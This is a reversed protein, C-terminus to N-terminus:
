QPRGALLNRGLRDVVQVALMGPREDVKFKGSVKEEFVRLCIPDRANLQRQTAQQLTSVRVLVVLEIIIV